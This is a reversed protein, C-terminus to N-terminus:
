VIELTPISPSTVFNEIRMRGNRPDTQNVFGMGIRLAHTCFMHQLQLHNVLQWHGSAVRQKGLKSNEMRHHQPVFIEITHHPCTRGNPQQRLEPSKKQSPPAM